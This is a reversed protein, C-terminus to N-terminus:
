IIIFHEIAKLFIKLHIENLQLNDNMIHFHKNFLM